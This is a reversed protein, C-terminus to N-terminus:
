KQKMSNMQHINLLICSYVYDIYLHSRYMKTLIGFFDFLAGRQSCRPM